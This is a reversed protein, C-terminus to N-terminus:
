SVAAPPTGTAQEVQKSVLGVVVSGPPLSQGEEAVRMRRGTLVLLPIMPGRSTQFDAGIVTARECTENEVTLKKARLLEVIEQHSQRSPM